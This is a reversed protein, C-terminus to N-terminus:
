LLKNLNKIYNDKFNSRNQASRAKMRNKKNKDERIKKSKSVIKNQNKSHKIKYKHKKHSGNFVSEQIERQKDARESRKRDKRKIADSERKQQRWVRPKKIKKVKNDKSVNKVDTEFSTQCNITNDKSVNKV